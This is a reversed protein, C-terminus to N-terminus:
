KKGILAKLGNVVEAPYKQADDEWAMDYAARHFFEATEPSLKYFDVGAKIAKNILKGEEKKNIAPWAKEQAIAAEEIIKQLHPSLSNWKKLNFMILNPTSWYPYDVTYKAVEYSGVGVFVSISGIHGDIVGRELGTYYDTLPMTVPTVGLGKLFGLFMPSAGIKMGKFDQPKEVKNKLFLWFFGTHSPIGRGLYKLGAKQAMADIYEFTGNEREKQPSIESLRISVIGPVLSSYFGCSTYMMDVVGQKVAMAQDFIPIAEPGGRVTISLEGKAQENIRDIFLPKWLAFDYQKLNLFSIFDVKIPDAALASASWCGIFIALVIAVVLKTLDKKMMMGEKENVIKKLRWFWQKVPIWFIPYKRNM